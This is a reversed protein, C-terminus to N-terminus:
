EALMAYPNTALKADEVSREQKVQGHEHQHRRKMKKRSRTRTQRQNNELEDQGEDGLISMSVFMAEIGKRWKKMQSEEEEERNSSFFTSIRPLSQLIGRLNTFDDDGDDADDHNVATDATVMLLQQLMRFSYYAAQYQADLHVMQWKREKGEEKSSGIGQLVVQVADEISPLTLGEYHLYTLVHEMVVFRWADAEQQLNIGKATDLGNQLCSALRASTSIIGETDSDSGSSNMLELLVASIRAGTRRYEQINFFDHQQQQVHPQLLVLVISYALVRTERGVNWATSRAPDDSIFPLYVRMPGTMEGRAQLQVQHVLESVRSDRSALSNKLIDNSRIEALEQVEKSTHFQQAFAQYDERDDLLGGGPSDAAAAAAAATLQLAQGLNCFLDLSMFFAPKILSSLHCKERRLIEAPRYEYGQLVTTTEGMETVTLDRFPVIRTQAGAEFVILDSDDSFITIPSAAEQVGSIMAQAAAAAAAEAAAVVCFPDAEGPVVFTVNAYKSRVLEEVVAFVLFPPPPLSKRASGGATMTTTMMSYSSSSSSPLGSPSTKKFAKLRAIYSQLRDIRVDKKSAPLAGDFLISDIRFGYGQLQDLWEITAHVCDGYTIVTSTSSSSSSSNECLGHYIHHALGPGDIIAVGPGDDDDDHVLHSSSSSSSSSPSERTKTTTTSSNAVGLTTKRAHNRIRLGFRPIGM